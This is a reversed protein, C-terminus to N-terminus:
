PECGLESAADEASPLESGTAISIQKQITSLAPFTYRKCSETDWVDGTFTNVAYHAQTNTVYVVAFHFYGPVVPKGDSLWPGDIWLKPSAMKYREHTMVVRLVQRSQALTLGSPKVDKADFSRAFAPLLALVGVAMVLARLGSLFQMADESKGHQHNAGSREDVRFAACM